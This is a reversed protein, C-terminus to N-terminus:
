QVFSGQGIVKYVERIMDYEYDNVAVLTSGKYKGEEVTSLSQIIKGQNAILLSNIQKVFEPALQSGAVFLDKPLFPGKAIIPLSSESLGQQQLFQEYKVASGGWADVEGKQLSPLGKSGLLLIKLDSQLNLGADILLKTPGLYGSTSGVKWMAIKKGKLEAVSKIKSNASVCIVTRYNPRTIAIIPVANTRARMVVYESPGTLVFDLQDSQLASAAATYSEVPVLEIETQLIEQLAAQLAGYDRQLEEIGSADTVTFRLKKSKSVSQLNSNRGNPTNTVTTCGAIFLLSYGIFNRRKMNKAQPM